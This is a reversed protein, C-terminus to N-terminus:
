ETGKEGVAIKMRWRLREFFTWDCVHGRPNHHYLVWSEFRLGAISMPKQCSVLLVTVDGLRWEMPSLSFEACRLQADKARVEERNVHFYRMVHSVVLRTVPKGTENPRLLEQAILGAMDQEVSVNM